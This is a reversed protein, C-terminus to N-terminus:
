FAFCVIVMTRGLRNFESDQVLTQKQNTCIKPILVCKHVVIHHWVSIEVVSARSTRDILISSSGYQM